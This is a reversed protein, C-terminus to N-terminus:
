RIGQYSDIDNIGGFYYIGTEGQSQSQGHSTRSDYYIQFTGGSNLSVSGPTGSAFDNALIAIRGGGGDGGYHPYASTWAGTGGRARIIGSSSTNLNDSVILVSGGAGGGTKGGSSTNTDYNYGTSNNGIIGASGDNEINCGEITSAFIIVVGGGPVNQAFPTASDNDGGGGAGGGFVLHEVCNTFTNGRFISLGETGAGPNTGGPGNVFDSRGGRGGNGGGAGPSGGYGSPGYGGGGGNDGNNTVQSQSNLGKWGEGVDGWASNGCSNCTGGRFGKGTYRTGSTADSNGNEIRNGNFNLTGSVKLAVIGGTSGNYTPSNVAGNLTLNEYQPVRVVQTVVASIANVTNSYYTHITPYALTLTSGSVNSIQNMEWNGINNGSRSSDQTQHLLIADGQSFGSSSAVNITQSGASSSSSSMYTYTNLTGSTTATGDTGTGYVTSEGEINKWETGDYVEFIDDTTNYRLMGTQPSPPRQATTGRPVQLFGDDNIDTDQLGAM